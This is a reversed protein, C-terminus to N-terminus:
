TYSCIYKTLQLMLLLDSFAGKWTGCEVMIIVCDREDDQVFFSSSPNIFVVKEV